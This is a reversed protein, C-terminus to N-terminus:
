RAEVPAASPPAEPSPSKPLPAPHVVNRASRREIADLISGLLVQIEPAAQGSANYVNYQRTMEGSTLLVGHLEISRVLAEAAAQRSEIPQLDSDAVEALSRQGAATGVSAVAQAAAAGLGPVLLTGALRPALPRLDYIKTSSEGLERIWGLAAEAERQREALPVMRHSVGQALAELRLKM